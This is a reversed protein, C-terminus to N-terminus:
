FNSKRKQLVRNTTGTLESSLPVPSCLIMFATGPPSSRQSGDPHQNGTQRRAGLLEDEEKWMCFLIGWERERLAM